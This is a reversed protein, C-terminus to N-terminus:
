SRFGRCRCLWMSSSLRESRCAERRFEEPLAYNHMLPGSGKGLDLMAALAESLYDKARKVSDELSYGKALNSAIASSLTCGTGHTNKTQVRPATFRVEGDRTFLMANNIGTLTRTLRKSGNELQAEWRNMESDVFLRNAYHYMPTLIALFLLAIVAYVTIIHRIDKASLWNVHKKLM